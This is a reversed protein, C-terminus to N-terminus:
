SRRSSNSWTASTASSTVTAPAALSASRTLLASSSVNPTWAPRERAVAGPENELPYAYRALQLRVRQEIFQVQTAGRQDEEEAFCFRLLGERIFDVPPWGYLTVQDTPRSTVSSVLSDSRGPM